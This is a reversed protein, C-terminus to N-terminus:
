LNYKNSDKKMNIEDIVKLYIPDIKGYITMPKSTDVEHSYKIRNLTLSLYIENKDYNYGRGSGRIFGKHTKKNTNNCHAYNMVGNEYFYCNKCYFKVLVDFKIVNDLFASIYALKVNNNKDTYYDILDDLIITSEKSNYDDNEFIKFNTIM